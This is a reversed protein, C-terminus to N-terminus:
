ALLVVAGVRVDEHPLMITVVSDVTDGPGVVSKLEAKVERSSKTLRVEFFVTDTDDEIGITTWKLGVLVDFLRAISFPDDPISIYRDFLARTVAVPVRFGIGEAFESVDVLSGDALAEERTKRWGKLKGM